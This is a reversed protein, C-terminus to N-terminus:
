HNEWLMVVALAAPAAKVAYHIQVKRSLKDWMGPEAGPHDALWYERAAAQLADM